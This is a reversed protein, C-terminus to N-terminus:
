LIMPSPNKFNKISAWLYGLFLALSGSLFPKNKIKSIVRLIEFLPHYGILYDQIGSNFIAKIINNEATCTTRYHYFIVDPFKKVEWSQFRAISKAVADIGGRDLPLYGSIALFCGRRFLQVVGVVSNSSRSVKIFKGNVLDYM